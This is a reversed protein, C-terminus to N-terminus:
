NVEQKNQQLIICCIYYTSNFVFSFWLVQVQTLITMWETQFM